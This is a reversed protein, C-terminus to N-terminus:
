KGSQSLFRVLSVRGDHNFHAAQMLAAPTAAVTKLPLPLAAAELPVVGSLFIMPRTTM